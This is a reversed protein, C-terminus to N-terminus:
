ARIAQMLPGGQHKLEQLHARITEVKHKLHETRAESVPTPNRDARGLDALYRAVSEELHQM